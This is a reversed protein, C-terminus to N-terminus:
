GSLGGAESATQRNIGANPPVRDVLAGYQGCKHCTETGAQFLGIFGCKMCECYDDLGSTLSEEPLADCPADNDAWRKVGDRNMYWSRTTGRQTDVM